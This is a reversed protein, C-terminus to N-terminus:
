DDKAHKKAARRKAVYWCVAAIPVVIYSLYVAVLWSFFLIIRTRRNEFSMDPVPRCRTLDFETKSPNTALESLRASEKLAIKRGRTRISLTVVNKTWDIEMAGYNIDTWRDYGPLIWKRFYNPNTYKFYTRLPEPAVDNFPTHTFGSATADMTKYPLFCGPPEVAIQGHHVDGSMFVVSANSATIIDMLRRQQGPTRTWSELGEAVLRAPRSIPALPELMMHGAELVQIGSGIVTLDARPKASLVDKLWAWQKEGMMTGESTPTGEEMDWRLDLLVVRVRRGNPNVYDVADYVGGNRRRRESGKPEDLFDLFIRKAFEKKAWRKGVNNYGYDHDDWTGIVDADARLRAYYENAKVTKFAQEHFAEGMYKRESKGDESKIVADAYVADGLWAFADPREDAIDKWLSMDRWQKNCSGFALKFSEKSAIAM